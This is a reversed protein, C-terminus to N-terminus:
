DSNTPMWVAYEGRKFLLNDSYSGSCRAESSQVVSAPM